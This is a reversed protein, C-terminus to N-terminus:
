FIKEDLSWDIEPRGADTLAAFDRDYGLASMAEGVTPDVDGDTIRHIRAGAARVAAILGAHRPRDLIVVTVDQRACGKSKAVAAINDAVPAEIDVADAAAPGTVLKSMYFVSSPDYMSGRASVALVSIANSMGNASIEAAVPRGTPVAM